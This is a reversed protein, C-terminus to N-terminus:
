HLGNCSQCHRCSSTLGWLSFSFIIIPDRQGSSLEGKGFVLMVDELSQVKLKRLGPLIINGDPEQRIDLSVGNHQCGGRVDVLLDFVQQM